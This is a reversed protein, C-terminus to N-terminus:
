DAKLNNHGNKRDEVSQWLKIENPLHNLNSIIVEKAAKNGADRSASYLLEIHTLENDKYLTRAEECYDYSLIWKDDELSLVTDRLAEHDKDSFYFNYLRDAKHFFPPDLYYLIEKSISGTKQMRKVRMLGNKWHVNWVFKVKSQLKAANELRKIIIDRPFRCDIKYESKQNQGGIPGSSSALIGSFSTRNLFLCVLARDRKNDPITNKFDNWKQVTVEISSIQDILWSIDEPDDSFVIQWFSAVLPDKEILGVSSVLDNELLYLSVSAGGAFLEVFLPSDIQNLQIIKEIYQSLRKKSGPYRLPSLTNKRSFKM